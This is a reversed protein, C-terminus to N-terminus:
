KYKNRPRIIPIGVKLYLIRNPLCQLEFSNLFEIPYNVSDDQNMFIDVSKFKFTEGPIINQIKINMDNVDVNKAALIAREAM